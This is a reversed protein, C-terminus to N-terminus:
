HLPKAASRLLSLKANRGAPLSIAALILERIAQAPISEEDQIIVYRVQKGTGELVRHPDPLLTGFEFGLRVHDAQPFIAGFYGSEPHRYGIGHWHPYASEVATPVTDLVIERLREAVARVPPAHGALIDEVKTKSTPKERSM